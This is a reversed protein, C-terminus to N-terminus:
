SLDRDYCDSESLFRIPRAPVGAVVCDPPVDRTVVSGAAVVSRRGIRVGKLITAHAGIWVEDEVVVACVKDIPRHLPRDLRSRLDHDFDAIYCFPGIQVRSGISISHHCDIIVYRNCYVHDGISVRGRGRDSSQGILIRAGEEFFGNIGCSFGEGDGEVLRGM